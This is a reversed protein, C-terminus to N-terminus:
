VNLVRKFFEYFVFFLGNAPIKHMLRPVSGRLFASPGGEDYIAAACNMISGGYGGSSGTVTTQLRTKVVDFPNTLYSGIGGAMAGAAMDRIWRNDPDDISRRIVWHEKIYEYSLLTFIAYPIDRVMQISVGGLPFFSRLGGDGWMTSMAVYTSPYQGTQLSQKVVEYPVRSFSAVTNGIAASCAISFNKIAADSFHLAGNRGRGGGGGGDDSRATGREGGLHMMLIPGITRKCYSYVGFYLGVSPMSGLASVALGAYLNGLGGRRSAIRRGAEIMGISKTGSSAQQVTKITDFPALITKSCAAALGSALTSKLGEVLASSSSSSSPPSSSPSVSATMPTSSSSSMTSAFAAASASASISTRGRRGVVRAVGGLPPVIGGGGGPTSAEGSPSRHVDNDVDAVVVGGGITITARTTADATPVYALLLSLLVLAATARTRSTHHPGTM